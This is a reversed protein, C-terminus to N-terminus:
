EDVFEMIEVTNEKMRVTIKDFKSKEMAWYYDISENEFTRILKFEYCEMCQAVFEENICKIRLLKEFLHRTEFEEIVYFVTGDVRKREVFKDINFELLCRTISRMRNYRARADIEPDQNLIVEALSYKDRM